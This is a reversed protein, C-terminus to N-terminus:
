NTEPAFADSVIGLTHVVVGSILEERALADNGAPARGIVGLDFLKSAAKRGLGLAYQGVFDCLGGACELRRAGVLSVLARFILARFILAHEDPTPDSFVSHLTGDVDLTLM